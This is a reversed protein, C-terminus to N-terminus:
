IGYEPGQNKPVGMHRQPSSPPHELSTRCDREAVRTAAAM